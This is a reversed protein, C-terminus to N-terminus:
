RPSEVRVPADERAREGAACLGRGDDLPRVALVLEADGPPAATVTCRLREGDWSWADPAAPPSGPPSPLEPHEYDFRVGSPLAEDRM